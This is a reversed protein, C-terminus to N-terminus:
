SCARGWAMVGLAHLATHVNEGSGFHITLTDDRGGRLLMMTLCEGDRAFVVKINEGDDTVGCTMVSVPFHTPHRNTAARDKAARAAM